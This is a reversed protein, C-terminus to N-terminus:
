GAHPAPPPLLNSRPLTPPTPSSADMNMMHIHLFEHRSTISSCALYNLVIRAFFYRGATYYLRTRRSRESEPDDDSFSPAHQNATSVGTRVIKLNGGFAELVPYFPM